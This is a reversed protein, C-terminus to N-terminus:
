ELLLLGLTANMTKSARKNGSMVIAQSTHSSLCLVSVNNAVHRIQLFNGEFARSIVKAVSQSTNVPSSLCLSKRPRWNMRKVSANLNICYRKAFIYHISLSM